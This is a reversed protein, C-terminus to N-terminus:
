VGVPGAPQPGCGQRAPLQGALWGPAVKPKMLTPGSLPLPGTIADLTLKEAHAISTSALMLALSAFLHRMFSEPLTQATGPRQQPVPSRKM